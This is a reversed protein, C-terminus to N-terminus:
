KNVQIRSLEMETMRRSMVKKVSGLLEQAAEVKAKVIKYSKNYVINAIHEEMAELEAQTNKDAVTGKELLARASNYAEKYVSKSIDDQVGLRECGVSTFYILSSLNLAFEDLETDTVPDNADRLTNDIIRVYEDLDACYESTIQDIAKDIAETYHKVVELTEPNFGKM